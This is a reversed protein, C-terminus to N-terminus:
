TDGANGGYRGGGIQAGVPELCGSDQEEIDM